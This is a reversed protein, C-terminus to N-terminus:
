SGAAFFYPAHEAAKQVVTAPPAADYTDFAISLDAAVAAVAGKNGGGCYDAASFVTLVQQDLSWRAGDRVCQHARVICRLGGAALFEGVARTGFKHGGGRESQAYRHEDESPDSWLLGVIPGTSSQGVDAGRRLPLVRHWGHLTPSLGGHCCFVEGGVVAALPMANFVECCLAWVGNADRGDPSRGGKGNEEPYWRKCEDHFGYTDSVM